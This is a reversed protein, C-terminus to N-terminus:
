KIKELFIGRGVDVIQVIDGRKISRRTLLSYPEEGNEVTIEYLHYGVINLMPNIRIMDSNVYVVGLVVIFVLLTAIQQWGNLPFTVLPIIYSAIYGMVDGDRTQRTTIKEQIPSMSLAIKFFFVYTLILGALGTGFSVWALIPNQTAFLILIILTLPFYSSVFLMCRVFITPM